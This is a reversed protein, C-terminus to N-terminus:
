FFWSNKALDMAFVCHCMSPTSIDRLPLEPIGNIRRRSKYHRRPEAKFWFRVGQVRLGANITKGAAKFSLSNLAWNAVAGAMVSDKWELGGVKMGSKARRIAKGGKSEIILTDQAVEGQVRGRRRKKAASGGGLAPESSDAESVLQVGELGTVGVDLEAIAVRQCGAIDGRRRNRSANNTECRRKRRIRALQETLRSNVLKLEAIETHMDSDTCDKGPVSFSDGLKAPAPFTGDQGCDRDSMSITYVPLIQHPSQFVCRFTQTQGLSTKIWFDDPQQKSQDRSEFGDAYSSLGSGLLAEALVCVGSYEASALCVESPVNVGLDGQQFFRDAEAYQQGQDEGPMALLVWRHGAPNVFDSRQVGAAALEIGKARFHKLADGNPDPQRVNRVRRPNIGADTLAKLLLMDEACPSQAAPAQSPASGSDGAAAAVIGTGVPTHSSGLYSARGAAAAAGEWCSVGRRSCEVTSGGGHPGTGEAGTGTPGM